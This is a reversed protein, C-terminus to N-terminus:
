TCPPPIENVAEFMHMDGEEEWSDDGYDELEDVPEAGGEDGSDLQMAVAEDSPEVVDEGFAVVRERKERPPLYRSSTPTLLFSIMATQGSYVGTPSHPLSANAPKKFPWGHKKTCSFVNNECKWAIIYKKQM